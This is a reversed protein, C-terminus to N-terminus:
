FVWIMFISHFVYSQLFIVPGLPVNVPKSARGSGPNPRSTTEIQGEVEADVFWSPLYTALIEAPRLPQFGLFPLWRALSSHLITTLRGSAVALM